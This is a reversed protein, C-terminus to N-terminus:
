ETILDKNVDYWDLAWEDAMYSLLRGAYLKQETAKAIYPALRASEAAIALGKEWGKKHHHRNECIRRFRDIEVLVAVAVTAATAIERTVATFYRKKNRETLRRVANDGAVIESWLQYDELEKRYAAREEKSMIRVYGMYTKALEMQWLELVSHKLLLSDYSSKKQEKQMVETAAASIKNRVKQLHKGFEAPTMKQVTGDPRPFEGVRTPRFEIYNNPDMFVKVIVNRINDEKERADIYKIMAKSARRCSAALKISAANLHINRYGPIVVPTCVYDVRRKLKEYRKQMEALRKRQKEGDRVIREELPLTACGCLVALVCLSLVSSLVRLVKMM